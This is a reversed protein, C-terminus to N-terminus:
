GIAASAIIRARACRLHAPPYYSALSRPDIKFNARASATRDAGRGENGMRPPSCVASAFSELNVLRSM